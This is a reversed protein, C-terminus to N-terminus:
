VSKSTDDFTSFHLNTETGELTFIKNSIVAGSGSLTSEEEGKDNDMMTMM